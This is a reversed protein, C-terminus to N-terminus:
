RGCNEAAEIIDRALRGTHDVVRLPLLAVCTLFAWPQPRSSASAPTQSMGAGTTFADFDAYSADFEHGAFEHRGFDDHGAHGNLHAHGNSGVTMPATARAAPRENPTSTSGSAAHVPRNRFQAFSPYARLTALDIREPYRDLATVGDETIVYLGRGQRAVLGARGLYVLVWGIRNSYASQKGSPLLEQLDAESLAFDQAIVDRIEQVSHPLRDCLVVLAPRIM